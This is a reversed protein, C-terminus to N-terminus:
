AQGRTPNESAGQTSGLPRRKVAQLKAHRHITVRGRLIVGNAAGAGEQADQATDALQEGMDFTAANMREPRNFTITAVHDAVDYLVETFPM